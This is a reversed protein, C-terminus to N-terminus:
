NEGPKDAHDIVLIEAPGKQSELKLGLQEQLAAFLSPLTSDNTNAVPTANDLPAFHLEVDFTGTYGTQDVIPRGLLNSLGNMLLPMAITRGELLTPELGFVGCPNASPQGPSPKAAMGFAGCPAANAHPLKLGGKAATLSYIPMTKTERHSALQFREALLAQLMARFQEEGINDDGTKAAVDYRAAEMWAPGGSIEFNKVKFAMSILMKLTVNTATFAGGAPPRMRTLREGSTNPKVSAVEFQAQAACAMTGAALLLFVTSLQSTNRM